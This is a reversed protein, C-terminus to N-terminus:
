GHLQGIVGGSGSRDDYLRNLADIGCRTRAVVVSSSPAGYLETKETVYDGLNFAETSSIDFITLKKVFNLSWRSRVLAFRATARM